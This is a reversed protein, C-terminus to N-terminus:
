VREGFIARGIRVHTAGEEIAVEFDDSMGMSLERLGLSGATRALRRFLPRVNETNDTQPAVTMLGKVDINPLRTISEYARPLEDFTFGYKTPEGAVNVELFAPVTTLARRSIAEALHLSDVSHIIDFVETTTKVKNSQLHGIMHWVVDPPLDALELRKERAEQARNEGLHRIGAGTTERIAEPSVGKTVAILTVGDPSRGGRLCASAIRLRVNQVRDAITELNM